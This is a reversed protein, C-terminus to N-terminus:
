IDEMGLDAIDTPKGKFTTVDTPRTDKIETDRTPRETMRTELESHTTQLGRFSDIRISVLMSETLQIIEANTYGENKMQRLVDKLHRMVESLEEDEAEKILIKSFKTALKLLKNANM